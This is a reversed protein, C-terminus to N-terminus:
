EVVSIVPHVVGYTNDKGRFRAWAPPTTIVNGECTYPAAIRLRIKLQGQPIDSETVFVVVVKTADNNGTKRINYQYDTGGCNITQVPHDADAAVKWEGNVFYELMFCGITAKPCRPGLEVQIKTGVPVDYDTAVQMEFADGIWVFGFGPQGSNYMQLQAWTGIQTKDVQTFVFKSQKDDSLIYHGTDGVKNELSVASDVTGEPNATWTKNSEVANMGDATFTWMALEGVPFKGPKHSVYYAEEVSAAKGPILVTLNDEALVYLTSFKNKEGNIGTLTANVAITESGLPNKLTLTGAEANALESVSGSVKYWTDTTEALAIYEAVTKEQVPKYAEVYANAAVATGADEGRSAVVYIVDGVKANFSAFNNANGKPGDLLGNVKISSNYDMITIVGAANDSIETIQGILRYFMEADVAAQNFKEIKTDIIEIRDTKLQTLTVTIAKDRASVIFTATRDQKRNKYADFTIELKGNGEGMTTYSNFWDDETYVGWITNSTVDFEVSTADADVTLERVEISLQAESADAGVRAQTVVLAISKTGSIVSFSAAREKETSTNADFTVTLTGNGNGSKTYDSVWEASSTVYWSSNSKIEFEVSTADSSVAQFANESSLVVSSSEEELQQCSNFALVASCTLLAIAFSRFLKM